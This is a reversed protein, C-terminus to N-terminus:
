AAAQAPKPKPPGWIWTGSKGANYLEESLDGKRKELAELADRYIAEADWKLTADPFADLLKPAGKDRNDIFIFSADADGKHKEHFDKMNRAGVAYSDAFLRADVMRGKRMARRIVGRGEGDWTDKPEAWVYAFAAKIGRKRCEQLVWENETANQEGAADWVAGVQAAPPLMGHHTSGEQGSKALSSGKGAACGGNTVLVTRRGPPLHAVVDDLYALFARKAVANATQHVAANYKAMAAKAEGSLKAGPGQPGDPNWDANLAKVDDTAFVNPYEGVKRKRLAKLYKAAMEDPAAAYAAAYASEV